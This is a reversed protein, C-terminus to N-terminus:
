SLFMMSECVQSYQNIQAYGHIEDELFFEGDFLRHQTLKAKHQDEGQSPADKFAQLGKRFVRDVAEYEKESHLDRIRHGGHVSPILLNLVVLLLPYSWNTNYRVHRSNFLCSLRYIYIFIYIQYTYSKFVLQGLGLDVCFFTHLNLM